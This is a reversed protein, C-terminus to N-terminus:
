FPAAAMFILDYDGFDSYLQSRGQNYKVEIEDIGRENMCLIIKNGVRVSINIYDNFPIKGATDLVMKDSNKIEGKGNCKPCDDWKEYHEFEWEVEGNGECADCEDKDVVLPLKDRKKIFDIKSFIFSQKKDGVDKFIAGCDLKANKDGQEEWRLLFHSDTAYAYGQGDYITSNMEPRYKDTSYFNKVLEKNM